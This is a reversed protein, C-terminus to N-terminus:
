KAPKAESRGTRNSAVLPMYNYQMAVAMVRLTATSPRRPHRNPASRPPIPSCHRRVRCLWRAGSGSVMSGLLHRLWVHRLADAMCPLRHYAGPTFYFKEQYGPGAPIHSKSPGLFPATQMSWRLRTSIRTAPASSFVSRCCWVWSVRAQAAMKMVLANGKFESALQFAGSEPGPLFVADRFTGPRSCCQRGPRGSRARTGSAQRRQSQFRPSSAFQTAAFTVNRMGAAAPHHLPNWRRGPRHGADLRSSKAVPFRDALVRRAPGDELDDFAPM